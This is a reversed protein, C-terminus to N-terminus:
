SFLPQSMRAAGCFSTPGFISRLNLTRLSETRPGRNSKRSLTASLVRKGVSEPLIEHKLQFVVNRVARNISIAARPRFKPGMKREPQMELYRGLNNADNIIILSNLIGAHIRWLNRLPFLIGTTWGCSIGMIKPAFQTDIACARQTFFFTLFNDFGFTAAVTQSIPLPFHQMAVPHGVFSTVHNLSKKRMSLWTHCVCNKQM